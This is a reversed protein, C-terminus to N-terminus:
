RSLTLLLFVLFMIHFINLTLLLPVLYLFFTTLKSWIECRTIASQPIRFLRIGFLINGHKWVDAKKMTVKWRYLKKSSKLITPCLKFYNSNLQFMKSPNYLQVFNGSFIFTSKILSIQVYFRNRQQIEKKVQPPHLNNKSFQTLKQFIM